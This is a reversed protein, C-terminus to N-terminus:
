AREKRSGRLHGRSVLDRVRALADARILLRKIECRENGQFLRSYEHQPELLDGLLQFARRRWQDCLRQECGEHLIRRGMEILDHLDSDFSM